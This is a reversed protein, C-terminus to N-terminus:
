GVRREESRISHQIREVFRNFSQALSGFEDHSVVRLRRTLDGEGEAIDQMAKGMINLPRLLTKIILGLLAVTVLVAILSAILASVRFDHLAAYAKDKDVSLGIYWKVSPLGAVPTFTIIRAKGKETVESIDTSIVPPHDAFVDQLKHTVLNKDPHVLIKGDASVLFAYGLGNLDVANIIKALKDLNLNVGLVGILGSPGKVPVAQTMVLYDTGAGIYPGTLVPADTSVADTYWSRQRADYGDPMTRDPKIVFHGDATGIYSAVFTSAMAPEALLRAVNDALVNGLNQMTNHLDDQISRAQRYDNYLAFLCFVVVTVAAATLLIKHGFKLQLSM